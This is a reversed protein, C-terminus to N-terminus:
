KLPNHKRLKRQILDALRIGALLEGELGLAPLVQRNALYVNRFCTCLPLGMMGIYSKDPREYSPLVAPQNLGADFMPTSVALIHRDMFPCLEDIVAGRIRDVVARILDTSDLDDKDMRIAATVVSCDDMTADATRAQSVEVLVPGLEPAKQPFLVARRAMGLPLGESRVLLNITLGLATERLPQAFRRMRAAQKEPLPLCAFDRADMACIYCGAHLITNINELKLSSIKAFTFEMEEIPHVADGCGLIDSGLELMRQGLQAGLGLEGGPFRYAGHLLHSIARDGGMDNDREFGTLFPRLAWLSEKVERVAPNEPAPPLMKVEGAEADPLVPPILERVAKRLRFRDWWGKPPFPLQAGFFGHTAEAGAATQRFFDCVDEASGPFVRSAETRLEAENLSHDFRKKPRIFQLAHGEAEQFRSLELNIGLEYLAQEVRPMVRLSPVLSPGIPFRTGKFDYFPAHGFPDFQLVTLGRKALLAGALLGGPQRGIIIVDYIHRSPQKPPAAIQKKPIASLTAQPPKMLPPDM